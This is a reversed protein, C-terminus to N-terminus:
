ANANADPRYYTDAALSSYTQREANCVAAPYANSLPGIVEMGEQHVELERSRGEGVSEAYLMFLSEKNGPDERASRNPLGM